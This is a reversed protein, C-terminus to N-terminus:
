RRPRKRKRSKKGARAAEKAARKAELVANWRRVPDSAARLEMSKFFQAAYNPRPTDRQSRLGLSIQVDEWDGAISIDIAQAAFASEMVPAAEVAQLDLLYSLVFANLAPGNEHFKELQATLAAVCEGRAAPHREGIAALGSAAAVRAWLSHTADELYRRLPMIAAPGIEGFVEPLLESAWDDDHEDIYRLCSLLSDIAEVARLQGLALWAHVPAYTEIEVESERNLYEDTALRMLDAIHSEDLGLARYDLREKAPRGLQLLKSVPYPYDSIAM